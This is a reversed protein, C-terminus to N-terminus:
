DGAAGDDRTAIGWAGARLVMAFLGGDGHGIAELHEGKIETFISVVGGIIRLFIVIKMRSILLFDPIGRGAFGAVLIAFGALREEMDLVKSRGM